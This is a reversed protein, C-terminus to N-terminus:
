KCNTVQVRNNDEFGLKMDKRVETPDLEVITEPLEVELNKFGFSPWWSRHFLEGCTVCRNQKGCLSAICFPHYLHRCSAVIIDFFSFRGNCFSCPQLELITNDWENNGHPLPRPFVSLRAGEEMSHIDDEIAARRHAMETIQRELVKFNSNSKWLGIKANQYLEKGQMARKNSEELAFRAIELKRANCDRDVKLANIQQLLAEGDM